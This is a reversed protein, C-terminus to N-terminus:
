RPTPRQGYTRMGYIRARRARHVVGYMSRDRTPSEVEDVLESMVHADLPAQTSIILM